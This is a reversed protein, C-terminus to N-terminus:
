PRTRAIEPVAPEAGGARKTQQQGLHYKTLGDKLFEFSEEPSDSMKFLDLDPAAIVGADVM